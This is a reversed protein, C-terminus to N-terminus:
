ATRRFPWWGRRAEAAATLKEAQTAFRDAVAKWEDVRQRESDLLADLTDARNAKETLAAITVRAEDAQARLAAVEGEAAGLKHAMKALSDQAAVLRAMMDAMLAPPDADDEGATDRGNHRDRPRDTHDDYHGDRHKAHHGDLFENPVQVVARGDNGKTKQWKRRHVMRRASLLTVGFREAIEEYSMATTPVTASM